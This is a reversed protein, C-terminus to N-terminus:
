NIVFVPTEAENSYHGANDLIRSKFMITDYGGFSAAGFLEKEVEGNEIPSQLGSAGTLDPIKSNLGDESQFEYKFWEDNEMYYLDIKFNTTQVEGNEDRISGTTEMGIDGDCDSFKFTLYYYDTDPFTQYFDGYEMEPVSNVCDDKRCSTVIVGLLLGILVIKSALKM